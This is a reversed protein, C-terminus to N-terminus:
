HGQDYVRGYGPGSIEPRSTTKPTRRQPFLPLLVEDTVLSSAGDVDVWLPARSRHSRDSSDGNIKVPIRM